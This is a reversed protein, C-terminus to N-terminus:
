FHQFSKKWGLDKREATFLASFVPYRGELHPGYIYSSGSAINWGNEKECSLTNKKAKKNSDDVPIRSVAPGDWIVEKAHNYRLM